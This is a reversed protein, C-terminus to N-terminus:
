QMTQKKELDAVVDDIAAILLRVDASVDANSGDGNSRQRLARDLAGLSANVAEKEYEDFNPREFVVLDSAEQVTLRLKGLTGSRLQERAALFEGDYAYREAIRVMDQASRLKGIIQAPARQLNSARMKLASVIAPNTPKTTTAASSAGGGGRWWTTSSSSSSSAGNEFVGLTKTATVGVTCVGRFVVMM